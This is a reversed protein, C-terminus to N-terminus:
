YNCELLSISLREVLSYAKVADEIGFYAALHLGDRRNPGEQIIYSSAYGRM